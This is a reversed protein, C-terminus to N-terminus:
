IDMKLQAKKKSQTKQELETLIRNRDQKIKDTKESFDWEMTVAKEEKASQFKSPTVKGGKGKKKGPSKASMAASVPATKKKAAVASKTKVAPKEKESKIKAAPAKTTEMADLQMQKAPASPKADSLKTVKSVANRTVIVGITGRGKVEHDNLNLDIQTIRLKPKPRLMVRVTEADKENSVSFWLVKSGETGKTLIYEKDRTTGGVTFRKVMVNGGRGDQFIMNFVPEPETKRFVSIYRVDKGVYKKEDVKTVIMTGDGRFVIMEDLESCESVFEDKKLSFGAFGEERNVYLKENNIIVESAVVQEFSEMRTKRERGKSYKKLLDKFWTIAYQRIHALNHEVEALQTELGKIKEDQEKV